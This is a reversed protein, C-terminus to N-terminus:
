VLFKYETEHEKSYAISLHSNKKVPMYYRLQKWFKSSPLSSKSGKWSIEPLVKIAKKVNQPLTNIEPLPSFKILIVKTKFNEFMINVGTMLEFIRSGTLAIYNPSLVIIIRRSKKISLIVDETYAGGPLVDREFLCLKYGYEKELVAPLLELAFRDETITDRTDSSSSNAYSVFADFEKGDNITEDKSCYHRYLLVIEIWFTYIGICGCTTAVFIVSIPITIIKIQHTNSAKEQLRLIGVSYGQSNQSFCTFNIGLDEEFVKNLNAKLILTYGEITNEVTQVESQKVRTNETAVKGNILWKIVPSFNKEYGFYVKCVLELSQGLELEITKVGYPELVTPTEKTDKIIVSVTFTRRVLWYTNNETFNFACTYNGSDMEYITHLEIQENKLKLSTREDYQEVTLGNKYWRVPSRAVSNFCDIGPCSIKTATDRILSIERLEHGQCSIQNQGVLITMKLCLHTNRLVCFYTGSAAPSISSFLFANQRQEIAEKSGHIQQVRGEDDKRYWLLEDAYHTSNTSTHSGLDCTLVFPDGAFVYYNRSPAGTFCATHDLPQASLNRGTTESITFALLIMWLNGIM